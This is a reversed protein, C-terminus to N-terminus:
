EKDSTPVTITKDFEADFDAKKEEPLNAYDYKRELAARIKDYEERTVTRPGPM